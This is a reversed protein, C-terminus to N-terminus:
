RPATAEFRHAAADQTNKNGDAGMAKATGSAIGPNTGMFPQSGPGLLGGPKQAPPHANAMGGPTEGTGMKFQSQKALAFWREMAASRIPMPTDDPLILERQLVDQHISEEDMWLIAYPQAPQILSQGSQRIAECVRKARDTQDKDPSDLQQVFAFPSRKRKEEVSITGDAAAQDLLLLRLSKSMPVLTEPNVSVEAAQDFDDSSMALALDPRSDGLVAIMRPTDYLYKMGALQIRGWESMAEAAARIPPNFIRETAERSALIARGSEDGTTSGRTADNWGSVQEFFSLAANRAEILDAGVSFSPFPQVVDGLRQGALNSKRVQINSLVSGVLTEGIIAGDVSIIRGGSNKRISEALRSELANIYMQTPVWGNVIARPLWADDTSGDTWRALPVRGFQLPMPEVVLKKGVCMMMLGQPMQGKDIYVYFQEVTTQNSLNKEVVASGPLSTSSNTMVEGGIGATDGKIIQPGYRKIATAQAMVRRIIWIKPKVTASAGPDVRVQEVRLVETDLDGMRQKEPEYVEEGTEDKKAVLVEDEPGADPDVFVHLFAVADTGNKFCASKTIAAMRQRRWQSELAMQMGEARKMNKQSQSGEPEVRFGPQQEAILEVRMDLAPGIVNKVMRAQDSPKPPERWPGKNQSSVWQNDTRMQRNRETIWLHDVVMPEYSQWLSSVWNCWDESTPETEKALPFGDGYCALLADRFESDTLEDEKLGLVEPTTPAEEVPEVETSRPIETSWSPEGALVEALTPAMIERMAVGQVTDEPYEADEHLSLPQPATM